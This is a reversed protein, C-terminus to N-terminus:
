LLLGDYQPNVSFNLTYTKTIKGPLHGAIQIKEPKRFVMGVARNINLGLPDLFGNFEEGEETRRPSVMGLHCLNINLFAGHLPKCLELDTLGRRMEPYGATNLILVPAISNIYM